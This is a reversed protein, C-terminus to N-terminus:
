REASGDGLERGDGRELRFSVKTPTQEFLSMGGLCRADTVFQRLIATEATTFPRCIELPAEVVCKEPM